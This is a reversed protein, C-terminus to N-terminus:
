FYYGLRISVDNDSTADSLGYAYSATAFWHRDFSYYGYLSVNEIADVNRYISDSRYYSASAYFSYTIYYGAGGYYAHTNRYSAVTTGDDIDDDNVQTYTYGGFFALSGVNYNASVSGFYDTKNNNFGSEYTPFLLGGGIRLSLQDAPYFRYYGSLSTDNMGSSSYASSEADFYSGLLQVTFQRYYYDAQLSTTFTDTKENTVYNYQSYALGMIIDFHHEEALSEISCGSKDVLETIRTNPCRDISDDVGDMDADVYAFLAAHILCLLLVERM